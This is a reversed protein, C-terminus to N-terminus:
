SCVYRKGARPAVSGDLPVKGIHKPGSQKTSGIGRNVWAGGGEGWVRKGGVGSDLKADHAAVFVKHLEVVLQAVEACAEREERATALTQQRDAFRWGTWYGEAQRVM